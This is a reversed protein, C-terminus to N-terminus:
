IESNNSGCGSSSVMMVMADDLFIKLYIRSPCHFQFVWLYLILQPIDEAEEKAEAEFESTPPQHPVRCELHM